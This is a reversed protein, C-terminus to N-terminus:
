RTRARPTTARRPALRTRYDAVWGDFAARDVFLDRCAHDGSADANRIRSLKRFFLTFDVRGADLIAFMRNFLAEDADKSELLGLKARLHRDFEGAFAPRYASLVAQAEDVSGILPMLAQGLCWCNWEAIRPQM